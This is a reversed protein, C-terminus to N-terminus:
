RVGRLDDCESGRAAEVTALLEEVSWQDAAHAGYHTAIIAGTRDILLDAPLGSQQHGGALPNSPASVLGRLAAGIVRPHFVALRSREVGFERYWHRQPDPITPFPLDGQYPMMAERRSHFFAVIQIGASTIQEYARAFGRLHLNCVPCGTFRRFQLHTFGEAPVSISGHSLSELTIPPIREGVQRRATKSPPM